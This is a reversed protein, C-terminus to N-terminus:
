LLSSIPVYEEGIDQKDDPFCGLSGRAEGWELEQEALSRSSQQVHDVFCPLLFQQWKMCDNFIDLLHLFPDVGLGLAGETHTTAM